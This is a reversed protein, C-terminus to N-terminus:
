DELRELRSEGGGGLLTSYGGGYIYIYIKFLFMVCRGAGRIHIVLTEFSKKQYPIQIPITEVDYKYFIKIAVPAWKKEPSTM